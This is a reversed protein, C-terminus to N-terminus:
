RESRNPRDQQPSTPGPKYTSRRLDRAIDAALSNLFLPEPEFAEPPMAIITAITGQELDKSFTAESIVWSQATVECGPLDLPIAFNPTWLTGAADRWSDVVVRAVNSRGWRRNMEWVARLEALNVGNQIQESIVYHPRFRPKGGFGPPLPKKPKVVKVVNGDGGLDEFRNFSFMVGRYESFQQDLAFMTEAAQVNVGQRAGSTMKEASVRALRLNGDPTEYCLLGSYRCVREIIEWSTEGLNINLQEVIWGDGAGSTVEIGYAGALQKAIALASANVIQNSPWVAACDVLDQAKGRGTIHVVHSQPTIGINRRDVYGTIVKDSGIYVEVPAGPMLTKAVDNPPTAEALEVEFDSPMREIGRTVRVRQWGAISHGATKITLEDRAPDANEAGFIKGFVSM